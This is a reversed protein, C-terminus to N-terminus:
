VKYKFCGYIGLISLSILCYSFSIHIFNFIQSILLFDIRKFVIILVGIIMLALNSAFLFKSIKTINFDSYFYFYVGYIFVYLPVILGIIMMYINLNQDFIKTGFVYEFFNYFSTLCYSFGILVLLLGLFKMFLYRNKM